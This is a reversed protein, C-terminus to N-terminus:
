RQGFWEGATDGPCSFEGHSGTFCHNDEARTGNPQDVNGQGSHRSCGGYDGGAACGPKGRGGAHPCCMDGLFGPVLEDGVHTLHRSPTHRVDYDDGHAHGFQCTMGKM